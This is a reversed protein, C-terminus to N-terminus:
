FGGPCDRDRSFFGVHLCPNMTHGLSVARGSWRIDLAGRAGQGVDITAGSTVLVGTKARPVLFTGPQM